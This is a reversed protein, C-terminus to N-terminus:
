QKKFKTAWKAQLAEVEEATVGYRTLIEQNHEGLDCSRKPVAPTKSLKIWPGRMKITKTKQFSPATEVEVLTGREWLARDAVVEDTTRIKCCAVGAQELIAVAQSIDDFEKLWSEVIGVLHRINKTREANSSLLPDTLCEPKGMATCFKEWMSGTYASIIVSQGNKGNYVGYPAMNLYHNGSRTPHTEMNAAGELTSNMAVLGDLLSIDIYQGEGTRERHFLASVMGGFANLAGVYDGVPVGLRTPPADPEGTLDMLGSMGQAIVDFGPKNRYPGTQGCASVSCYIIDPRYQIVSEYDLGFKAMTGPKYSEVVLDAEQIMNRLIAQSEPDDLALTVSKKGRNSWTGFIAQGEIRPSIGRIDDGAVPREIKIVDAGFDALIATSGPGALNSTFDIVRIGEFISSM